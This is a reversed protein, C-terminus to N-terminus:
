LPMTMPISVGDPSTEAVFGLREYLRRADPNASMVTLAITVAGLARGAAMATAIAETGIGKGRMAPLLAIDILHLVGTEGLRTTLRGIPEGEHLLIMHIADPFQRAYGARQAQFQQDLMMTLMAEPLGLAAFQPRREAHSLGRLFPEDAEIVLRVALAPNAFAMRAVLGSPTEVPMM